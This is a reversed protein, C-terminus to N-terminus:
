GACSRTLPPAGVCDRLGAADFIARLKKLRDNLTSRPLGLERAVEAPTFKPLLECIRRLEEPLQSVVANIDDGLLCASGDAGPQGKTAPAAITESRPILASDGNPICENLSCEERSPNRMEQDRHRILNCIKRKIVMSVFTKPKMGKEANYRPLRDLVDLLIEQELDEADSELFEEDEILRRVKHAIVRMAYKHIKELERDPEM